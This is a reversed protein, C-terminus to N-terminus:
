PYHIHRPCRLMTRHSLAPTTPMPPVSAAIQAQLADFDSAQSMPLEGMPFGPMPQYYQSGDGGGGGFELPMDFFSAPIVGEGTFNPMDMGPMNAGQPPQSGSMDCDGHRLATRRRLLLHLPNLAATSPYHLPGGDTNITSPTPHSALLFCAHLLTRAGSQDRSM